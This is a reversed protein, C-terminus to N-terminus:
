LLTSIHVHKAMAFFCFVNMFLISIEYMQLLNTLYLNNISELNEIAM